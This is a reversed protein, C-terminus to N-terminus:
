LQKEQGDVAYKEPRWSDDSMKRSTVVVSQGVKEWSWPAHKISRWFCSSDHCFQIYWTDPVDDLSKGVRETHRPSFSLEEIKYEVRETTYTPSPPWADWVVFVILLTTLGMATGGFTWLFRAPTKDDTLFKQIKSERAKYMDQQTQVLRATEEPDM